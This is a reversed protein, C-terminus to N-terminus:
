GGVRVTRGTLVRVRDAVRRARAGNAPVVWVAYFGEPVPMEVRYGSGVQVAVHGKEDPGADDPATVVIKEARPSDDTQFVEVTGLLDGLKLEHAQGAKVSLKAAVLVPIGDKPKAYVDFPGEGPLAAPEGFKTVTLAPKPREKGAKVAGAPYVTVAEVAPLAKSPVVTLRRDGDAAGAPALVALAVVVAIRCSM